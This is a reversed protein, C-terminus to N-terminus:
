QKHETQERGSFVLQIYVSVELAFIGAVACLLNGLHFAYLAVFLAVLVAIRVVYGLVLVKSASSNKHTAKYMGFSVIASWFVAYLVGALFGAACYLKDPIFLLIVIEGILLYALDIVVILQLGKNIKKLKELM